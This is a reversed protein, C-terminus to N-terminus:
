RTFFHFISPSNLKSMISTNIYVRKLLNEKPQKCYGILFLDINSFHTLPALLKLPYSNKQKLLFFKTLNSSILETLAYRSKWCFCVQELSLLIQHFPPPPCRTHPTQIYPLLLTVKKSIPQSNPPSSLIKLTLFVPSISFGKM